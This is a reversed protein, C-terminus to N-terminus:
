PEDSPPAVASARGVRRQQARYSGKGKAGVRRHRNEIYRAWADDPFNEIGRVVQAGARQSAEIAIRPVPQATAIPVTRYFRVVQNVELLRVMITLKAGFWETDLVGELVQHHRSQPWNAPPRILLSWGPSTRATLAPTIECTNGARPDADIFSFQGEHSDFIGFDARFREPARALAQAEEPLAVAHGGALSQWGAPENGELRAFDMTQGDWRLAFDVPPFLYWGYGSAETLPACRQVARSPLAGRLSPSAPEPPPADANFVFFEVNPTTLSVQDASLDGSVSQADSM